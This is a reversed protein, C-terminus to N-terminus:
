IDYTLSDNKGSRSYFLHKDSQAYAGINNAYLLCLCKEPCPGHITLSFIYSKLCVVKFSHSISKKQRIITCIFSYYNNIKM